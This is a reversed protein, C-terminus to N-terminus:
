SPSYFMTNDHVLEFCFHLDLLVSNYKVFAASIEPRIPDRETKDM